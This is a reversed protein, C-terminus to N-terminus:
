FLEPLIEAWYEGNVFNRRIYMSCSVGNKTKLVEKDFKIIDFGTIPHFFDALPVKFTEEFEKALSMVLKNRQSLSLTM